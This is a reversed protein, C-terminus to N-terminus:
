MDTNVMEVQAQTGTGSKLNLIPKGKNDLDM